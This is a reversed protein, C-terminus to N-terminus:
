SLKTSRGVKLRITWPDIGQDPLKKQLVKAVKPVNKQGIASRIEVIEKYLSVAHQQHPLREAANATFAFALLFAYRLFRM